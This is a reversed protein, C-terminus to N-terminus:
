PVVMREEPESKVQTSARFTCGPGSPFYSKLKLFPKEILHWSLLALPIVALTALVYFALQWLLAHGPLLRFHTENFFLHRVVDRVPIHSLYIAYSHKGFFRLFSSTFIKNTLSAEPAHLLLILCQGFLVAFLSYGITFSVPEDYDILRLSFLVAFAVAILPVLTRAIRVSAAPNYGPLRVALALLSGWALADVRGPTLVYIQVWSYGALWMGTRITLAGFIAAVCVRWLARRGLFFVAIAWVLYFQEEIALSWTVDLVGLRSADVQAILFNSLYFVYWPWDSLVLNFRNGTDVGPPLYPLIAPIVLFNFAVLGYYLPLIRLARRAYFNRFFHPREKSELLIGTILFGSLVFFLDISHVGAHTAKVYWNEFEGVPRIITFHVILVALTALGRFGDLALIRDAADAAQNSNPSVKTLNMM